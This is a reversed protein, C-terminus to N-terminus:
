SGMARHLFAAMQGRTVYDNPCFRDNAPPNCGKTVGATGLRDIDGEFVSGNDDVFLNGKGADTYGFARTLFAAMQGRTVYSDPCFRDNAPPNCGKTVGAAGLRDIDGEFVSNDDDKFLDGGGDDTYGLARTLFAAMQGRTVYSNPCFHDNAPPNCGKTIGQGALWDIDAEFISGNDDNFVDGPYLPAFAPISTVKGDSTLRYASGDARQVRFVGGPMARTLDFDSPELGCRVFDYVGPAEGGQDDVEVHGFDCDTFRVPAEAPLTHEDIYLGGGDTRINSWLQMSVGGDGPEGLAHSHVAVGNGLLVLRRYQYSNTYAGQNVGADRNYYATFGDIVHLMHNNQWVFIGNGENNHAVNDRFTWTGQSNEPWLFGSRDAGTEGQMGVAVSNIVSTNSGKGLYFATLRHNEGPNSRSIRAAVVHDFLLDSTENTQGPAPDDWWYPEGHVNYAITDRFTIGHSNHPVFAHNKTDRVVVGEVLTGRSGEGSHHFHLGYRGTDHHDSFAGPDPGLYRLAAYRISSPRSSHILIHAYGSPTGEIRVNRTLDLLETRYGLANPPPTSTVPHFGDYNGPTNPAAMVEDGTWTPDYQYSWATKHQGEIILRGSGVVWLGVDTAIPTTGDGGGQFASEDVGTFRLLHQISGSSPRMVLTGRVVVNGGSSITVNSNPDLEWTQGAPVTFGNPYSGTTLVKDAIAAGATSGVGLVLALTAGMGLVGAIWWGMRRTSLRRDTPTLSNAISNSM